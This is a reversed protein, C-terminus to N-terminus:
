FPVEEQESDKEKATERVQNVTKPYTQVTGCDPVDEDALNWSEELVNKTRTGGKKSEYEEIALRGIFEKGEWRDTNITVKGEYPQNIVRLWHKTFGAGPSDEPLLTVTHWLQKGAYVGAKIKITVNVKPDHKATEGDETSSVFLRYVGAPAPSFSGSENVNTYDRQVNM